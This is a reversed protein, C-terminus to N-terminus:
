TILINQKNHGPPPVWLISPWHHPRVRGRMNRMGSFPVADPCHKAVATIFSIYNELAVYM